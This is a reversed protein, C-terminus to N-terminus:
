PCTKFLPRCQRNELMAFYSQPLSEFEAVLSHPKREPDDQVMPTFYVNKRNLMIALNELNGSLADNTSLAILLPRNARLHAKAAMTVTSDTIGRAMKALTNGTCPALILAQLPIAPGLPEADRISRIPTHGTLETLQRILQDATGFRTDTTASNESLIPLIEVGQRILETLALLARKHCCFSACMAFGTM